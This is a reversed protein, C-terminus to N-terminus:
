KASELGKCYALAVSKMEERTLVSAITRMPMNIDNARTGEAFAQLQQEFYLANQNSLAPAGIVYGGPGHCSACAPIGRKPDGAYILREASNSNRYSSNGRLGRRGSNEPLGSQSAFYAAVDAYQEPTLSQAIASMPNSLRTGSRFDDLQKYIVLPDLGALIPIEPHSTLAQEIHCGTCNLAIFEGRRIDGSRAQQVTMETWAVHSPVSVTPQTTKSATRDTHFGLARHAAEETSLKEHDGQHRPLFLFGLGFGIVLIAVLAAVAIFHMPHHLRFWGRGLSM